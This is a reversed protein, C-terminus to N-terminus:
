STDVAEPERQEQALGDAVLGLVPLPRSLAERREGSM